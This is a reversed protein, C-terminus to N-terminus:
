CTTGSAYCCAVIFRNVLRGSRVRVTGQPASYVTMIVHQMTQTRNPHTFKNATPKAETTPALPTTSLALVAQQSM